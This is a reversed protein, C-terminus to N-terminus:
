SEDMKDTSSQPNTSGGDTERDATTIPPTLKEVRKQAEEWLEAEMEKGVNNNRSNLWGIDLSGLGGGTIVGRRPVGQRNAGQQMANQQMATMSPISAQANSIATDRYKSESPLIDAEKLANIEQRLRVDLSSLTQFYQSASTKFAEKRDTFAAMDLREDEADSSSTTLAKM